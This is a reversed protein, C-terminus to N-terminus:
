WCSRPPEESSYIFLATNGFSIATKWGMQHLENRLKEVMKTMMEDDNKLYKRCWNDLEFYSNEDEILMHEYIDKRLYCLFRDYFYTKFESKNNINLRKPFELM